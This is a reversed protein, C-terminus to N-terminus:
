CGRCVGGLTRKVKADWAKGQADGERSGTSPAGPSAPADTRDAPAVDTRSRVSEPTPQRHAPAASVPACLLLLAAVLRPM